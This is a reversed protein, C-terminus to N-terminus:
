AYISLNTFHSFRSCSWTRFNKQSFFRHLLFINESSYDESMMFCELIYIGMWFQKEVSESPQEDQNKM